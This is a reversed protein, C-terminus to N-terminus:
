LYRHKDIIKSNKKKFSVFDNVVPYARIEKNNNIIITKKPCCKKEKIETLPMLHRTSFSEEFQGSKVRERVTSSEVEIYLERVKIM